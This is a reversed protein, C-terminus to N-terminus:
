ENKVEKSKPTSNQSVEVEPMKLAASEGKEYTSTDEPAKEMILREEKM